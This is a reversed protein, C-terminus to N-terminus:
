PTTTCSAGSNCRGHGREEWGASVRAHNRWWRLMCLPGGKELRRDNFQGLGYEIGVM